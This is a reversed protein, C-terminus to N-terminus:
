IDHLRAHFHGSVVAVLWGFISSNLIHLVYVLKIWM